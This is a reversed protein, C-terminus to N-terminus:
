EVWDPNKRLIVIGELVGSLSLYKEDELEAREGHALLVPTSQTQWGTITKPRGAQGAVDVAQGIRVNVALPKLEEDLTVLFRPYMSPILYYLLHHSKDLVFERNESLTVMVTLLGAAGVRSLVQRDTHFPNLSITGKGLHLLGQSFKVMFTAMPDRYYYTSLQRLLLALRANNTGAGVLGMAFIANTAVNLDTDHTYRSLTDYVKMQPNSPLLLGLALPVANRVAPSGYHMLHGLQRIYMEQGIEEGMAVLAMGIVAYSQLLPNEKEGDDTCIQLLQQIKLVNGTGAWACIDALLAMPKSHKNDVAKLIDLSIEVDEQRGLYLLALGLNMFCMSRDDLQAEREPSNDFWISLIAEAVRSHISGVFILGLSHAAMASVRVSYSPDEIYEIFKDLFIENCTGAYAIGLGMIISCRTDDDIGKTDLLEELCAYAVNEPTCISSVVAGFALAYGNKAPGMSSSSLLNYIADSGNKMDWLNLLGHSAAINMSVHPKSKAQDAPVNSNTGFGANVLANVFSDALLEDDPDSHGSMGTHQKLHAKYIDAPSKPDLINLEEGLSKFYKALDVNNFCDELTIDDSLEEPRFEFPTRQRAMLFAMQWRIAKDDTADFIKRLLKQDNLRIAIVMARTYQKYQEYIDFATRLFRDNDPYPLLPVM